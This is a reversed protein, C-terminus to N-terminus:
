KAAGLDKIAKQKKGLATGFVSAYQAANTTVKSVLEDKTVVSAAAIADLLPTDSIPDLNYAKAEAVQQPWSKIEDETYGEKVVAVEALFDSVVKAVAAKKVQEAEKAIHAAEHEAKTTVVGADDTTDSFKDVVKWAQVTNGLADTTVGNHSAVQLTTVTPSPTELVPELGLGALTAAKWVRPLSTHKNVARWEGQTKVEGTSPKIYKSM